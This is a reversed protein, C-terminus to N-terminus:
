PHAHINEDVRLGGAPKVSGAKTRRFEICNTGGSISKDNSLHGM